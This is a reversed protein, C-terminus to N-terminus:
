VMVNISAFSYLTRVAQAIETPTQRDECAASLGPELVRIAEVLDPHSEDTDCEWEACTPCDTYDVAEGGPGEELREAVDDLLRVVVEGIRKPRPEETNEVYERFAALADASHGFAEIAGEVITEVDNTFADLAADTTSADPKRMAALVKDRARVPEDTLGIPQTEFQQAGAIIRFSPFKQATDPNVEPVIVARAPNVAGLEILAEVHDADTISLTVKHDAKLKLGRLFTGDLYKPSSPGANHESTACAHVIGDTAYLTDLCWAVCNLHHSKRPMAAKLLATLTAGTTTLKM